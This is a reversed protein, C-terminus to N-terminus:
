QNLKNQMIWRNIKSIYVNEKFIRNNLREVEAKNQHKDYDTKIKEYVDAFKEGEGTQCYKCQFDFVCCKANPPLHNKCGKAVCRGGSCGEPCNGSSRKYYEHDYLSNYQYRVQQDYYKFLLYMLVLLYAVALLTFIVTLM